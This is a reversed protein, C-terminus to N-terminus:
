TFGRYPYPRGTMRAAGGESGYQRIERMRSEPQHDEVPISTASTPMRLRSSGVSPSSPTRGDITARLTRAAFVKDHLWYWRGGEPGGRRLAEMMPETWVQRNVFGMPHTAGTPVAGAPVEEPPTVM